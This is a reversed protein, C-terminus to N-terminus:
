FALLANLFTYLLPLSVQHHCRTSLHTKFHECITLAEFGWVIVWNLSPDISTWMEPSCAWLAQGLESTSFHLRRKVSFSFVCVISTLLEYCILSYFQLLWKEAQKWEYSYKYPFSFSYFRRIMDTNGNGFPQLRHNLQSILFTNLNQVYFM